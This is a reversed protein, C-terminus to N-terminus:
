QVSEPYVTVNFIAKFVQGGEPGQHPQPYPGIGGNLQVSFTTSLNNDEPTDFRPRHITGTILMEAIGSRQATCPLGDTIDPGGPETFLCLAVAKLQDTIPRLANNNKTTIGVFGAGDCHIIEIANAPDCGPSVGWVSIYDLGDQEPNLFVIEVTAGSITKSKTIFKRLGTDVPPNGTWISWEKTITVPINATGSMTQQALALCPVAILMVMSLLLLITRKM